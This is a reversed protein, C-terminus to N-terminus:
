WYVHRYAPRIRGREAYSHKRISDHVWPDLIYFRDVVSVKEYHLRMDGFSPRRM